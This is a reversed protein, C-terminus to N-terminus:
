ESECQRIKRMVRRGIVEACQPVCANGLSRLRALRDPVGDALMGVGPEFAWATEGVWWRRRVGGASGRGSPARGQAGGRPMDAGRNSAGGDTDPIAESRTRRQGACCPGSADRGARFERGKHSEGRHASGACVADSVNAAGDDSAVAAGPENYQERLWEREIWIGDGDTDPIRSFAADRRYATVFVRDRIHPAGVANASLSDWEADYGGRALDSLVRGLGSTLLGPVNEVVVVRPRLARVLRNFESWLGSRTGNEIGRQKGASSVDQCPFGGAIVDVSALRTADLTKIDGFLPLGPWHKALVRRCFPDNEVQWACRMGALELGLDIGGIGSFLSGFMVRSM